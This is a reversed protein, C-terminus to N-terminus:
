RRVAANLRTRIEPDAGQPGALAIQNVGRRTVAAIMFEVTTADPVWVTWGDRGAATLFQTVQDRHFAGSERRVLAQAEEFTVPKATGAANWLYGFMPLEAAIRNPGLAEARLGIGRTIFPASTLAGPRTGNRHEGYLRVMLVAAARALVDTPYSVTDTAPVIITMPAWGIARALSVVAPIDNPTEDQFDLAIRQGAQRSAFAISKAAAAMVLSDDALARITEPHYRNGEFSSVIAVPADARPVVLRPRLSATDLLILGGGEEPPATWTAIREPTALVAAGVYWV